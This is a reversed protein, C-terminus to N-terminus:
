VQQPKQTPPIVIGLELPHILPSSTPWATDNKSTPGTTMPHSLVLGLQAARAEKEAQLRKRRQGLTEEEEPVEPTPTTVEKGKGKEDLDGFQSMMESKFDGSVPRTLPLGTMARGSDKLREVRQALSEGEEGDEAPTNLNMMTSARNMQPPRGQLRDRRRSLPENDEIERREMLGLPRDLEQVQNKKQYLVALPVDEDDNEEDIDSTDEWALKVQKTYRKKQEVQAVADLELLTSQMGNPFSSALPRTRHKQQQKRLQLEALLTTPAGVYEEEQEESDEESDEYDRLARAEADDGDDDEDRLIKGDRIDAITNRRKETESDLMESSSARRGRLLNFSSIRKKPPEEALLHTSSKSNRMQPRGYVEAGLRGAFAHDTFASVPAFASADLISDLTAVASQEKLEVTENHGPLDFFVNARLQEPLHKVDQPLRRGGMTARQHQAVYEMEQAGDDAPLDPEDEIELVDPLWIASQRAAPPITSLVQSRRKSRAMSSPMKSLKQPLNLMMPVPAPYYVMQQGTNPDEYSQPHEYTTKRSFTSGAVSLMDGHSAARRQIDDASLLDGSTKRRLMNDASLLDGSTKRELLANRENTSRRQPVYDGDFDAFAKEAREFTTASGRSTPREAGEEPKTVPMRLGLEVMSEELDLDPNMMRLLKPEDPGEAEDLMDLMQGMRTNEGEHQEQIGESGWKRTEVFSDLPRGELEPEPRSGFRASKGSASRGRGNQTLSGKPSM